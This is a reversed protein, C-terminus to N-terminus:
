VKEIKIRADVALIEKENGLLPNIDIERIEIANRLLGSLRM